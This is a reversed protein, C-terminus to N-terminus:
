FNAQAWFRVVMPFNLKGLDTFRETTNMNMNVSYHHADFLNPKISFFRNIFNRGSRCPSPHALLKAGPKVFKIM